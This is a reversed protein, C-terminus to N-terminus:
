PCGYKENLYEAIKEAERKNRATTKVNMGYGASEWILVLDISNDETVTAFQKCNPRYELTHDLKEIYRCYKIKNKWFNELKHVGHHDGCIHCCKNDPAITTEILVVPTMLNIWDAIHEARSLHKVQASNGDVSRLHVFSCDWMQHSLFSFSVGEMVAAWTLGLPSTFGNFSYQNDNVKKEIIETKDSKYPSKFFSFFLNIYSRSINQNAHMSECLKVFDEHRMRCTNFGNKSLEKKCKVFNELLSKDTFLNCLSLENFYLEPM